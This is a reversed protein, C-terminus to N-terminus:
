DWKTSSDNLRSAATKTCYEEQRRGPWTTRSLWRFESKDNRGKTPVKVKFKAAMHAAINKLHTDHGAFVLDDGHGLGCVGCKSHHLCPSTRGTSFGLPQAIDPWACQWSQAAGSANYMAKLLKERLHHEHYEQHEAPLKVYIDRAAGACSYARTVDVHVINITGNRAARRLLYELSEIPPTADFQEPARGTPPLPTHM